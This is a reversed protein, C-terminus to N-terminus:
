KKLAQVIKDVIENQLAEYDKPEGKPRSMTPLIIAKVGSIEEFRRVTKEPNNTSALLAKVHANKADLAVSGIRGASPPVGPKEELSGNSRLGYAAFFYSFEKHYELFTDAAFPALKAKNRNELASLKKVLEAYHADFVAAHKPDSRKMAVLASKAGDGLAKPSIWFHPNGFPHVDGMSRDIPGTPKDLVNVSTGFECFGANGSTIKANGARELVKPLWGVELELGVACLVDANSAKLVFDPSADVFHPDEVGRLLSEVKVGSESEPGAIERVAWALDPLTTVVTIGAHASFVFSTAIVFSVFKLKAHKIKM